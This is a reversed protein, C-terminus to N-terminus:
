SRTVESSLAFGPASFALATPEVENNRIPLQAGQGFIQSFVEMKFGDPSFGLSKLHSTATDLSDSWRQLAVGSISAQKM